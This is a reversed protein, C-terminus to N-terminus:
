EMGELKDKHSFKETLINLISVKDLLMKPNRSSVLNPNYSEVEISIKSNSHLFDVERHPRNNIQNVMINKNTQNVQFVLFNNSLNHVVKVIINCEQNLLKIRLM